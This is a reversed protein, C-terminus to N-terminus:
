APRFVIVVSPFPASNESNGFKLRGKIFRIEVGPRPQHKQADWIHAHWARTDTRSPILMVTLVGKCREEAAKAIFKGAQSYPPNCWAVTPGNITTLGAWSWDLANEAATMYRRCKYNEPSAAVDYNMQFERYLEDYLGQPTEWEDSAKSFMLQHNM